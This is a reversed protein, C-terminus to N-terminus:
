TTAKPDMIAEQMLEERLVLVSKPAEIGLKVQGGNVSVVEVTIDSGIFFAEGLQRTLILM